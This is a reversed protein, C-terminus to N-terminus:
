GWGHRGRLPRKPVTGSPAVSAAVNFLSMEHRSAVKPFRAPYNEYVEDYNRAEQLTLKCLAVVHNIKAVSEKVSTFWGRRIAKDAFVSVFREIQNLWSNHDAM